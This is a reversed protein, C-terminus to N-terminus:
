EGRPVLVKLMDRGSKKPALLMNICMGECKYECVTENIQPLVHM